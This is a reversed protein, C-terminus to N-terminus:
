KKKEEKIDYMVGWILWALLGILGLSVIGTGGIFVVAKILQDSM